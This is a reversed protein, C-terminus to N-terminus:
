CGRVTFFFSRVLLPRVDSNKLCGSFLSNFCEFVMGNIGILVLKNLLISHNVIDFAASLDLLIPVYVGDADAAMYLDTLADAMM